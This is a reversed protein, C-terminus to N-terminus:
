PFPDAKGRALRRFRVEDVLAVSQVSLLVSDAQIAHATEILERTWAIEARAGELLRASDEPPLSRPDPSSTM